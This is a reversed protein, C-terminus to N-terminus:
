IFEFGTGPKGVQDPEGEAEVGILNGKTYYTAGDLQFYSYQAFKTQRTGTVRVEVEEGNLTM